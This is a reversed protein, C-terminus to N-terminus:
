VYFFSHTFTEAIEMMSAISKPVSKFIVLIVNINWFMVQSQLGQLFMPTFGECYCTGFCSLLNINIYVVIFFFFNLAFYSKRANKLM